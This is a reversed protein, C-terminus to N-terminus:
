PRSQRPRFFTEQLSGRETRVLVGPGVQQRSFWGQRTELVFQVQRSRAQIPSEDQPKMDHIELIVGEPDIYACSLPIPVNKMWFSAQHPVGFVFLMGEDEAVNTRFMMGTQVQEPTSAVEATIEAPGLLLKLAPLRPQARQPTSLGAPRAPAGRPAQDCGATPVLVAM